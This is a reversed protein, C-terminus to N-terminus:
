IVTNSISADLYYFIMRIESRVCYRTKKRKQPAMEV